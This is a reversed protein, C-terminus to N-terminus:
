YKKSANDWTSETGLGRKAAGLRNGPLGVGTVAIAKEPAHNQFEGSTQAGSMEEQFVYGLDEEQNYGWGVPQTLDISPDILEAPMTSQMAYDGAFKDDTSQYMSYIDPMDSVGLIGFSSDEVPLRSQVLPNDIQQTFDAPAIMSSEERLVAITAATVVKKFVMM